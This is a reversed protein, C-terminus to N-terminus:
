IRIEHPRSQTLSLPSIMTLFDGNSRHDDSFAADDGAGVILDLRKFVRSSVGLHKGQGLGLTRNAIPAESIAVKVHRFLRAGHTSSGDDMTPHAPHNEAAPIFFATGSAPQEVEQLM